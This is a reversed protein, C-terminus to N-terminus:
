FFYSATRNFLIKFGNKSDFNYFTKNMTIISLIILLLLSGLM